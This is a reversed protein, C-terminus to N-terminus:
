VAEAGPGTFFATAAEVYEATHSLHPVHGAGAFIRVDSQPLARAVAEVVLRFFSPSNAGATILIPGFDRLRGLDLKMAEPDRTEDLWTLSNFVFTERMEGPIRDWGGPGVAITEVFQRTGAEMQGAALLEAAAEMRERAAALAPRAEDDGDLLDFLPPEHVLLRRFLDQREAATRLAIAAGFSTAAVNVPALHLHEVLGVLDAVDDRISGQGAIRESRSHGRRDYTLVRFFPSLLPVVRDWARHDTWSGHVFVVPEGAEGALEWYLEVGNIRATSM